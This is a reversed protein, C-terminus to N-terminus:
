SGIYWYAWCDDCYNYFDTDDTCIGNSCLSSRLDQKRRIQARALWFWDDDNPDVMLNICWEKRNAEWLRDRKAMALERARGSLNATTM